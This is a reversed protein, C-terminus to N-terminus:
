TSKEGGDEIDLVLDEISSKEGTMQARRTRSKSETYKDSVMRTSKVSFWEHNVAIAQCLPEGATISIAEDSQILAYLQQRECAEVDRLGQIYLQEREFMHMAQTFFLCIKVKPVVEWGLDVRYVPNKEGQVSVCDYKSTLDSVEDESMSSLDNTSPLEIDVPSYLTLGTAAANFVSKSETLMQFRPSLMGPPEEDRYRSNLGSSHSYSIVPEYLEGGFGDVPYVDLQVDSM